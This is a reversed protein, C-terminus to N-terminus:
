IGLWHGVKNVASNIAQYPKGIITKVVPLNTIAKGGAKGYIDGVGESAGPLSLAEAGGVLPASAALAQIQANDAGIRSNLSNIYNNFEDPSVGGAHNYKYANNQAEGSAEAQEADLQLKAIQDSIDAAKLAQEYSISNLSPAAGAQSATDMSIPLTPARDGLLAMLAAIDSYDKATATNAASIVSPDKQSLYYALDIPAGGMNAASSSANAAAAKAALADGQEKSIGLAADDEATLTGAKLDAAIRANTATATDQATKVASNLYSTLNQSYTQGAQQAAATAANDAAIANTLSQDAQGTASDLSGQLNAAPAVANRIVGYADPNQSLLLADLTRVGSTADPQEFPNLATTISPVSNGANWLNATQVASQVGQALDQYAGTTEFKGAPNPAKAAAGLETQYIAQQDPTLSSPSSAVAANVSEDTPVSYLNGTYTNVAPQIANQAANVQGGVTGAVNQAFAQTQPQNASLYASLQASPQAPVNVGPTAKTGSPAAVGAGGSSVPAQPNPPVGQANPQEPANPDVFAM